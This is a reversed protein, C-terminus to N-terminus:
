AAAGRSEVTETRRGQAQRGPRGERYPDLPERQDRHCERHQERTHGAAARGAFRGIAGGITGLRGRLRRRPLVALFGHGFLDCGRMAFGAPGATAGGLSPDDVDLPDIGVTVAVGMEDDDVQRADGKGAEGRDIDALAQTRVWQGHDAIQDAGGTRDLGARV